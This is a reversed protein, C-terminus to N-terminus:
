DRDTLYDLGKLRAYLLAERVDLLYDHARQRFAAEDGGVEEIIKKREELIDESDLVRVGPREMVSM